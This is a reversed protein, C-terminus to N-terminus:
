LGGCVLFGCRSSAGISPYGGCPGSTSRLSSFRPARSESRSGCPHLVIARLFTFLADRAEDNRGHVVFVERAGAAPTHRNMDDSGKMLKSGPPGGISEETVDLGEGDFAEPPRSFWIRDLLRKLFSPNSPPPNIEKIDVQSIDDPVMIRGDIIIHDGDLYPSVIVRELHEITIRFRFETPDSRGKFRIRVNYLCENLGVAGGEGPGMLLAYATSAELSQLGNREKRLRGVTDAASNLTAAMARQSSLSPFPILLSNLSTPSINAQTVGPITLRRIRSWVKALRGPRAVDRLHNQRDDLKTPRTPISGVVGPNFTRHEALQALPGLDEM